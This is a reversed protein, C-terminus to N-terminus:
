KMWEVKQQFGRRLAAPCICMKPLTSFETFGWWPQGRGKPDWWVPAPTIVGPHATAFWCSCCLLPMEFGRRHLARHPKPVDCCNSVGMVQSNGRAHTNTRQTCLTKKRFNRLYNCFTHLKAPRAWNFSRIKKEGKFCLQPNLLKYNWM